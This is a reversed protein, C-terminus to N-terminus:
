AFPRANVRTFTHVCGGFRIYIAAPYWWLCGSLVCLPRHHMTLAALLTGTPHWTFINVPTTYSSDPSKQITDNNTGSCAFIIPLGWLMVLKLLVRELNFHPDQFGFESIVTALIVIFSQVGFAGLIIATVPISMLFFFNPIHAQDMYGGIARIKIQNWMLIWSFQRSVNSLVNKVKPCEFVLFETKLIGSYWLRKRHVM